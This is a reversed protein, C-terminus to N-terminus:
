PRGGGPTGASRGLAVVDGVGAGDSGSPGTVVVRVATAPRGGLGTALLYPADGAGDGVPRRSGALGRWAGSPSRAELSVSRGAARGVSVQELPRARAWSWELTTRDGRRRVTETAGRTLDTLSPHGTGPGILEWVTADDRRTHLLEVAWGAHRTAALLCRSDIRGPVKVDGLLLYSAHDRAIGAPDCRRGGAHGFASWATRHGTFLATSNRYDTEVVDAPRGLRSLLRVYRSGGFHSTDQGVAVMYDGPLRPLVVAALLVAVGAAAGLARHYARATGHDRVLRVIVAAGLVYWTVLVPLVLIGRRENVDPWVAAVLLYVLVVPVTADRHRRWWWLAGVGIVVSMQVAFVEWVGNRLWAADPLPSGYPAVTGPIAYGALQLVSGPLEGLASGVFHVLGHGYDGTLESAYRSGALATGSALRAVAIPVLSAAVGAAVLGARRIRGRGDPRLLLYGVLGAVVGLGALKLWVLGAAAAVVGVGVATVVRGQGDWRDVLLLLVILLVLFPAEAMVMTGYTALVPNVALVLLITARLARSVGRRGLYLWLLPFLSSLCLASLIRMPGFAHPWLWVLPVLLASYGPPYLGVVSAGSAVHGTLGAGAALARAVM